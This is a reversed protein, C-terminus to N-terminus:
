NEKDIGAHAGSNKDQKTYGPAYGFGSALRYVNLIGAMFGLVVFAVMLWPKTKLWDDL